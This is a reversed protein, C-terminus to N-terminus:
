NIDPRISSNLRGLVPRMARRPLQAIYADVNERQRRQHSLRVASQQANRLAVDQGFSGRLFRVMSGIM